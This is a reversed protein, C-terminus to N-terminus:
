LCRRDWGSLQEDKMGLEGHQESRCQQANKGGERGGPTESSILSAFERFRTATGSGGGVGRVQEQDVM